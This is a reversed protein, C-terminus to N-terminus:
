KVFNRAPRESVEETTVDETNRDRIAEKLEKPAHILSDSLATSLAMISDMYEAFPSSDPIENVVKRLTAEIEVRLQLLEHDDPVKLLPFVRSFMGLKNVVQHFRKEMNEFQDYDVLVAKKIGNIEIVQPGNVLDALKSGSLGQLQKSNITRTKRSLFPLETSNSLTSM